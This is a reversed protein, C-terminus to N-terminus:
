KKGQINTALGQLNRHHITVSNDLELLEDFTLADNRYVIRLAREDAMEQENTESNFDGILLLNDYNAMLKDLAKGVHGLFNSIKKKEPNYGVILWKFKRLTLEAFIVEVDGPSTTPKVGKFPLDNRFYM